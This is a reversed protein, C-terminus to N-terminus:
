GGGVAHVVELQDGTQLATSGYEARPVIAGNREVIAMADTMKKSALFDHITAGEPMTAPKGNVVFAVAAEAHTPSSADNMGSEKQTQLAADLATRLQAAAARPDDAEAIAGIVAIGQAGARVVDAVRAATIGGIALVPCPAAAAIAALGPLGAPPLGPKSRSPFVHGALLYDAGAARTAGAVDHVSKGIIADPGLLSRAEEPSMDADRLHLGTALARATEPDGNVVLRCTTPARCATGEDRLAGIRERLDAVVAAPAAASLAIDRLYVADVGGAVAETVLDPLPLRARAADTVLM